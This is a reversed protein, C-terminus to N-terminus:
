YNTNFIMVPIKRGMFPLHAVTGGPIRTIIKALRAMEKGFAIATMTVTKIPIASIKLPDALITSPKDKIPATNTPSITAIPNSM